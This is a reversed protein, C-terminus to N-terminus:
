RELESRRDSIQMSREKAGDNIDALRELRSGLQELESRQGALLLELQSTNKLPTCAYGSVREYDSKVAEYRDDLKM